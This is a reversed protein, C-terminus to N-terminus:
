TRDSGEKDCLSNLHHTLVAEMMAPSLSGPRLMRHLALGDILAYLREAELEEDLGPKATETRIMAGVIDMMVKRLEDYVEDSRPKLEPDSLSKASFALWVEMELTSEEDLPLLQMLLRKADEMNFGSAFLRMSRIREKVRDSVLNMAFRLLESQSNFYHRMAGFSLGAEQAINRVTAQALGGSRIVKWAAEAIKERQKDHDVVKPM